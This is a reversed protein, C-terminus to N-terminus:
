TKKEEKERRERILTKTQKKILDEILNFNSMSKRRKRIRKM